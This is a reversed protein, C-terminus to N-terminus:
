NYMAQKEEQEVYNRRVAQLQNIFKSLEEFSLQNLHKNLKQKKEIWNNIVLLKENTSMSVDIQGIDYMLKFINRRMKQLRDNTIRKNAKRTKITQIQEDLKGILNNCERYEMESSKDTRGYTFDYVLDAKMEEDIGLQNLLQYLRKNQGITRIM